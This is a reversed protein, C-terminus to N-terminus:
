SEQHLLDFENFFHEITQNQFSDSWSDFDEFQFELAFILNQNRLVFFPYLCFLTKILFCCPKLMELSMFVEFMYIFEM